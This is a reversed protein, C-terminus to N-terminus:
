TTKNRCIKWPIEIEVDNMVNMNKIGIYLSLFDKNINATQRYHNIIASVCPKPTRTITSKGLSINKSM